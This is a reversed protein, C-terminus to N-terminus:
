EKSFGHIEGRVDFYYHGWCDRNIMVGAGSFWCFPHMCFLLPGGVDGGKWAGRFFM